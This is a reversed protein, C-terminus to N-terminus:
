LPCDNGEQLRAGSPYGEVHLGLVVCSCCCCCQHFMVSEAFVIVPRVRDCLWVFVRKESRSHSFVRESDREWHEKESRFARSEHPETAACNPHTTKDYTTKM